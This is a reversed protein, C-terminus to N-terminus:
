AGETSVRDMQEVADILRAAANSALRRRVALDVTHLAYKLHDNARLLQTGANGDRAWDARHREVLDLIQHQAPTIGQRLDTM